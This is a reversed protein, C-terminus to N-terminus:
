FCTVCFINWKFPYRYMSQPSHSRRMPLPSWARNNNRNMGDVEPKLRHMKNNTSEVSPPRSDQQLDHSDLAMEIAQIYLVLTYICADISNNVQLLCGLVM